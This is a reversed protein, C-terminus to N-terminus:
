RTSAYYENMERTIAEGGNKNWLQVFTDWESLPYEGIIIKVAYEIWLKQLEPGFELLSDSKYYPIASTVADDASVKLAEWAFEFLDKDHKVEDLANLKFEEESWPVYSFHYLRRYIDPPNTVSRTRVGDILDFNIGKFGFDYDRGAPSFLWNFLKVPVSPDKSDVTIFYVGESLALSASNGKLGKPGIPAHIPKMLGGVMPKVGTNQLISTTRQEPEWWSGQWVGIKGQYVREMWQSSNLMYFEPDLIGEKYLSNLYALADKMEPKTPNYVVKGNVESWTSGYQIVGFAGFISDLGRLEGSAMYGSIGLTDKKGNGDPDNFTFARLMETFEPLTKPEAIGLKDSWDRRVWLVRNPISDKGEVPYFYVSPIGYIKGDVKVHQWANEPMGELIDKGYKALLDDLPVLLGEKAYRYLDEFRGQVLDPMNKSSMILNLKDYYTSAEPRLFVPDIGSSERIFNIYPNNNFDVGEPLKEKSPRTNFIVVKQPGASVAPKKEQTGAATLNPTILLLMLGLLVVSRKM